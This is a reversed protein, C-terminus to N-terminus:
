FKNTLFELKGESQPEYQLPLPPVPPAQDDYGPVAYVNARAGVVYKKELHDESRCREYYPSQERSQLIM